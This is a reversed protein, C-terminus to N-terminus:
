QERLLWRRQSARGRKWDTVPQELGGLRGNDCELGLRGACNGTRVIARKEVLDSAPAAIGDAKLRVGAANEGTAAKLASPCNSGVLDSRDRPREGSELCERPTRKDPMAGQLGPPSKPRAVGANRLELALDPADESPVREVREPFVDCRVDVYELAENGM